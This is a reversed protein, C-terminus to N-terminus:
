PTGGPEPGAPGCHLLDAISRTPGIELHRYSGALFVHVTRDDPKWAWVGDPTRGLLRLSGPEVTALAEDGTVSPWRTDIRLVGHAIPISLIANMAVAICVLLPLAPGEGAALRPVAFGGVGIALASFITITNSWDNLTSQDSRIVAATLGGAACTTSPTELLLNRIRALEAVSAMLWGSIVMALVALLWVIQRDVWGALRALWALRGNRARLWSILALSTQGAVAVLFFVVMAEALWGVLVQGGAGLYWLSDRAIAGSGLGLMRQHAVTEAFGLGYLVATIGAVVGSVWALATGLLKLIDM